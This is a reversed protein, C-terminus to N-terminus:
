HVVLNGGGLIQEPTKAGDWNSSFVLTSGNWLTVAISDDKGPEGKDTMSMQLSWGGGISVPAIANTVDTLNAKSSWTALGLCSASPPGACTTGGTAATKLATGFTDVATTKIQYVRGGNRYIINVHGQTNTGKSNYKVNFGFNMKSPNAASNSGASKVENLYGGGTVFQGTPDAVEVVTPVISTSDTYYGSVTTTVQYEM